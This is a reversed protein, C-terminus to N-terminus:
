VAKLAFRDGERFKPPLVPSKIGFPGLGRSTYYMKAPDPTFRGCCLLRFLTVGPGVAEPYIDIWEPCTGNRCLLAVVEQETLGEVIRGEDSPFVREDQTAAADHSQNLSVGYRFGGIPLDHSVYRQALRLSVFSAAVLLIHFQAPTM